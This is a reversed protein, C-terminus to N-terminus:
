LGNNIPLLVMFGSGAGPQSTVSVNGRHAQVAHRVLFLGLGSGEVAQVQSEPVRYFRAFIKELDGEKIGIGRDRVELIANEGERWLRVNIFKERKSYKVANQLLNVVVLKIAEADLPFPPIGEDLEVELQFGLNRTYDEYSKLIEKVIGPLSAKEFRYRKKGAEIKSFDLMNTIMENMRDTESLIAHLYDQKKSESSVWGLQLKEALMRIRTLPTKLTHSAGDTFESKLRMLATERSFYKYFLYIGLILVLIFATMLLYNLRIEQRARRTFFNAERSVLVLNKDPFFKEFRSSLLTFPYDNKGAAPDEPSRGSIVLIRLGTDELRKELIERVGASNLFGPSLMFGGFFGRPGKRFPFVQGPVWRSVVDVTHGAVRVRVWRVGTEGSSTGTSGPKEWTKLQKVAKYFQTKEDTYLYFERIKTFRFIDRNKQETRQERGREDNDNDEYEFYRWRLAIDTDAFERLRDPTETRSLEKEKDEDKLGRRAQIYQNLYELAENKFFAFQESLNAAEYELIEDYLQLYLDVAKEKRGRRQYALAMQRLVPFYLSFDKGGPLVQSYTDVIDRYYSVAQPYKGWKFYCRAIANLITPRLRTPEKEDPYDLCKVYRKLAGAIEREEFELREGERYLAETKKNATGPFSTQVIPLASKKSFPFIFEGNSAIIFPFRVVPNVLLIDKLAQQLSAQDTLRDKRGVLHRFTEKVAAEIKAEIERRLRQLDASYKEALKLERTKEQRSISLIAFVSIILGPIIVSLMLFVLRYKRLPTIKVMESNEPNDNYVVPVKKVVDKRSNHQL